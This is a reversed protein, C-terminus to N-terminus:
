HSNSAPPPTSFSKPPPPSTNSVAVMSRTVELPPASHVGQSGDLDLKYEGSAIVQLMTPQPCCAFSHLGACNCCSLLGNPNPPLTLLSPYAVGAATLLPMPRTVPVLPIGRPPPPISPVSLPPCVTNSCGMISVPPCMTTVPVVGVPAAACLQVDSNASPATSRQLDPVGGDIPRKAAGFCPLSHSILSQPPSTLATSGLRSAYFFDRMVPCVLVRAPLDPLARIYSLISGPQARNLYPLLRPNETQAGAESPFDDLLRNHLDAIQDATKVVYSTRKDSWEVEISYIDPNPESFTSVIDLRSIVIPVDDDNATSSPSAQDEAIVCPFLRIADLYNRIMEVKMKHEISFAPHYLAASVALRLADLVEEKETFSSGATAIEFEAYLRELLRLYIAAAQRNTSHLLSLIPFALELLLRYTATQLFNQIYHADNYRIEYQRLYSSNSRVAAEICCGLYRQEYANLCQVLEAIAEVRQWRKLKCMSLVFDANAAADSTQTAVSCGAMADTMAGIDRKEVFRPDDPDFDIGSGSLFGDEDLDPGSVISGASASGAEQSGSRHKCTGHMKPLTHNNVVQAHNNKDRSSAHSNYQKPRRRYTVTVTSNESDSGGVTGNRCAGGGGYRDGRRASEYGNGVLHQAQSSPQQEYAHGDITAAFHNRTSNSRKKRGMM